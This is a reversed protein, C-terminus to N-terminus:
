IVKKMKLSKKTRKVGRDIEKKTLLLTNIGHQRDFGEDVGVIYYKGIKARKTM